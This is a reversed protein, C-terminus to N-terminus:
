LLSDRIKYIEEIVVQCEREHDQMLALAERRLADPLILPRGHQMPEVPIAHGPTMYLFAQRPDDETVITRQDAALYLRETVWLDPAEPLCRELYGEPLSEGELLFALWAELEVLTDGGDWSREVLFPQAARIVRLTAELEARPPLHRLWELM